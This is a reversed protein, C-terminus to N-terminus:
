APDGPLYIRRANGGFVAAREAESLHSTADTLIGLMASYGQYALTMPWDSGYLVREPGGAQIAVNLAVRAAASPALGGSHDHVLQQLGSFKVVVNPFALAAELQARWQSWPATGPTPPKGLHDIVITLGGLDRALGAVQDLFGPFADPVDLPLGRNALLALSSRVGALRLFDPRPDAHVLHRVGLLTPRADLAAETARPDELPLWGVVGLLAPNAVAAALLADTERLSDEAQVAIAGRVGASELEGALEEPAVARNLAAPADALWDYGFAPDWLHVHSDIIDM